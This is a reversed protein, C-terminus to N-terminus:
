IRDLERGLHDLRVRLDGAIPIRKM